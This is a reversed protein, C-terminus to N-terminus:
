NGRLIAPPRVFRRSAGRPMRKSWYRVLDELEEALCFSYEFFAEIGVHIQGLGGPRGLTLRALRRTHKNAM